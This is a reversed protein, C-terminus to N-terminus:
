TPAAATTTCRISASTTSHQLERTSSPSTSGGPLRPTTRMTEANLERMRARGVRDGPLDALLDPEAEGCFAITAANEEGFTRARSLLWPPTWSLVDDAAHEILARRIHPDVYRLDVYRAGARYAARAVARALPAHEINAHIEVLQGRQVNAGIHVALEAYRELRDSESM